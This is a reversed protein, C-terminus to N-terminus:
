FLASLGLTLAALAVTTMLSLGRLAALETMTVEKAIAGNLAPATPEVIRFIRM